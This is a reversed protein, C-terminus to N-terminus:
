TPLERGRTEPAFWIVVLGVAYIWALTTGARAFDGGFSRVLEGGQIAGIAAFVRGLNFALGQGTARVRTPFLEPLYLPLWGFFAATVFGCVIASARLGADYEHNARFLVNTAVLSLLSLVFYTARRGFRAGALPALFSGITAGCAWLMAVEGRANPQAPGALGHVWAPVAWQNVAWTGILPISALLTALLTRSVLGAAALERLPSSKSAHTAEKWLKSEPVALRVFFTLLAPAAGVVFMWRWSGSRVPFERSIWGLLLFGANAAAGIVGALLPRKMEPWSEMLLAVGLSWEGGMGLAALFRTAGLELPTRALAGLGTFLSYALISLALARVRGIRDGLWGFLFGGAAAGVLFAATMRAILPPIEAAREPGVLDALAVPGVVPLLGMEFGDFLWGLLAAILAAWAARSVQARSDRANM